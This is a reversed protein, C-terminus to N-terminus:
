SLRTQTKFLGNCSAQMLSCAPVCDLGSFGRGPELLVSEPPRGGLWRGQGAQRSLGLSWCPDCLSAVLAAHFHNPHTNSAQCPRGAVRGRGAWGAGGRGVEPEGQGGRWCATTGRGSTEGIVGAGTRPSGLRMQEPLQSRVREGWACECVSACVGSTSELTGASLRQGGRASSVGPSLDPFSPAERPGALLPSSSHPAFGAQWTSAPEEMRCVGAGPVHNCASRRHFPHFTSM